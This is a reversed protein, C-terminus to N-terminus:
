EASRVKCRIDDAGKCILLRANTPATELFLQEVQLVRSPWCYTFYIEADRHIDFYSGTEVTADIQFDALLQRSAEALPADIEIGYADFGLSHALGTAVGMGSGWEVFRGVPIALLMSYVAQADSPSYYFCDVSKGRRKGEEAFEALRSPLEQLPPDLPTEVLSM